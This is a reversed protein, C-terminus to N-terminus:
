VSMMNLATFLSTQQTFALCDWATVFQDRGEQLIMSELRNNGPRIYSAHARWQHLNLEKACKLHLGITCLLFQAKKCKRQRVIKNGYWVKKWLAFLLRSHQDALSLYNGSWAQGQRQYGTSQRM